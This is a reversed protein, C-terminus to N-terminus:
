SHTISEPDKEVRKPLRSGATQSRSEYYVQTSTPYDTIISDVGMKELDQMDQIRNVTWVSVHLGAKHAAEVVGTSCLRWNLCLYHCGLREAQKVPNPFRKDFVLGTKLHRDRRKIQRLFRADSSTVAVREHWHNRQILEVLRNWLSNMRGHQDSKVELQLHAFGPCAELVQNLTPIGCPEPWPATGHRADLAALEAVTMEGVKGAIGTTRDTTLDHNIVPEGSGALLVDMEFHRTGNKYANEFGPLTNEPAEAKAGRHGYIIM